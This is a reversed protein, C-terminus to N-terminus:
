SEDTNFPLSISLFKVKAHLNKILAHLVTSPSKSKDSLKAERTVSSGINPDSRPDESPLDTEFGSLLHIAERFKKDVESTRDVSAAASELADDAAILARKFTILIPCPV